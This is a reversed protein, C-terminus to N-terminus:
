EARDNRGGLYVVIKYIVELIIYTFMFSGLFVLFDIM